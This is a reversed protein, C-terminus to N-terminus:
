AGAPPLVRRAADAMAAAAGTAGRRTVLGPNFVETAVFPRASIRELGAFLAAFDVAGEGPLLRGTMAENLVDADPEPATDCLQLYAVREGPIGALLDPSPGGPQRQWHWADLVIAADASLAAVLDWAAALTPVGSWPLFELCARAGAEAAAAALRGFADQARAPEALSTEMTVALVIGAGHEAALGALQRAEADAAADDPGAWAMAGEVVAVHAGLDAPRGLAGLQHSWVSLESCGAAVAAEAAARVDADTAGFPDALLTATCMGVATM